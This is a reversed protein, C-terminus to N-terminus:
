HQDKGQSEANVASLLGFVDFLEAASLYTRALGEVRKGVRLYHGVDMGVIMLVLIVQIAIAILRESFKPPAACYHEWV